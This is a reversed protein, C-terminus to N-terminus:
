RAGQVQEVLDLLPALGALIQQASPDHWQPGLEHPDPIDDPHVSPQGSQRWRRRPPAPDPAAPAMGRAADLEAVLWATPDDFSFPTV